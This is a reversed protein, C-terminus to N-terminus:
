LTRVSLPKMLAPPLVFRGGFSFPILLLRKGESFPRCRMRRLLAPIGDANQAPFPETQTRGRVGTGGGGVM